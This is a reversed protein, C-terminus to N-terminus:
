IIQVNTQQKNGKEGNILFTHYEDSVNNFYIGYKSLQWEINTFESNTICAIFM